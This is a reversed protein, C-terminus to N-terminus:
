ENVKARKTPQSNPGSIIRAKDSPGAVLDLGPDNPNVQFTLSKVMDLNSINELPAVGYTAREEIQVGLIGVINSILLTIECTAALQFKFKYNDLTSVMSIKNNKKLFRYECSPGNAIFEWAEWLTTENESAFKPLM